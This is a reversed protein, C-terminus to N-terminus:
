AMKKEEANKRQVAHCCSCAGVGVTALLDAGVDIDTVDRLVHPAFRVGGWGADAASVGERAGQMLYAFVVPALQERARELVDRQWGASM